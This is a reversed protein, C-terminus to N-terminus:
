DESGEGQKAQKDAVEKRLIKVNKPARFNMRRKGHGRSGMTVEVEQDGIRILVTEGEDMTLCLNGKVMLM